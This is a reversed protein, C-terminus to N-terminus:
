TIFSGSGRDAIHEFAVADYRRWNAASGDTPAAQHRVVFSLDQSAVEECHFRDPQFGQIHEKEDFQGRAPDMQSADSYVRIPEPHSLLGSLQYPSEIFLFSRNSEQNAVIVPFIGLGKVCQEPTFSDM